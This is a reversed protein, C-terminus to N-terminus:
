KSKLCLTFFDNMKYPVSTAFVQYHHFGNGHGEAEHIMLSGMIEPTNAFHRNMYVVGDGIDYGMTKYIYNQAFSGSFINVGFTIPKQSQLDYIQQNTLLPATTDWINRETFNFSLMNQKFCDSALVQNAENTATVLMDLEDATAGSTQGQIMSPHGLTIPAPTNSLAAVPGPQSQTAMVTSVQAPTSTTDMTPPRSVQIGTAASIGLVTGLFWRKLRSM